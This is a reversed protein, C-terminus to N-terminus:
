ECGEVTYIVQLNQEDDGKRLRVATPLIYNSLSLVANSSSNTTVDVPVLSMTVKFDELSEGDSLLGKARLESEWVTSSEMSAQDWGYSEALGLIVSYINGFSYYYVGQNPDIYNDNAVSDCGYYGVCSTYNNPLLAEEFYTNLSDERVMLLTPAASQGLLYGQPKYAMLYLNASNLFYSSDRRLPDNMMANIIRGVPLQVQAYYGQPSTIFASDTSALREEKNTDNYDFGSMQIVDPTVAIYNVHNLVYTSDGDDAMNRLLTGDPAYRHYSSYFLYIATYYVKVLSGEGFTPKVCVGSLWESRLTSQDAFIDTHQAHEPNDTDRAIAADVALRLFQDKYKDDLKVEVYNMYDSVSRASDSLERNAATYGKRGLLNSESYMSSFDNSSYFESEPLETFDVEPNLSYISLQMPALSDGYYANYYIRITMSDIRNGVLSDYHSTYYGSPDWRGPEEAELQQVISTRLIGFLTSDSSNTVDMTTKRNAYFQALYGATLEGLQPDSVAGLLPYGTRVYVSDRYATQIPVEYTATRLTIGDSTPRVSSGIESLSDDCSVTVPIAIAAIAAYTLLKKM